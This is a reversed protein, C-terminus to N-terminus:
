SLSIIKFIFALDGFRVTDGDQLAVPEVVRQDNVFTGNSSGLDYVRFTDAELKIVAHQRSVKPNDLAIDNKGTRGLSVVPKNVDHKKETRQRDILLAHYAMQPGRTIIETKAHRAPPRASQGLAQGVPPFDGGPPPAVQGPTQVQTKFPTEAGATPRAQYSPPESPDTPGPAYFDGATGWEPEPEGRQRGWMIALVFILMLLGLGGVVAVIIAPNDQIIDLPSKKAEPEIEAEGTTTIPTTTTLTDTAISTPPAPTDTEKVVPTPDPTATPPAPTPTASGGQIDFHKSHEGILGVAEVRIELVQRGSNLPESEYTL